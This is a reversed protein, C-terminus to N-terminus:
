GTSCHRLARMAFRREMLWAFPGGTINNVTEFSVV